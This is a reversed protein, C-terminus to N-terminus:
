SKGNLQSHWWGLQRLWIKWLPPSFGGVLISVSHQVSTKLGHLDKRQRNSFIATLKLLRDETKKQVTCLCLYSWINYLCYIIIPNSDSINCSLLHHIYISAKQNIPTSWIMWTTLGHSLISVWLQVNLFVHVWRSMNVISSGFNKTSPKPGIQRWVYSKGLFQSLSPLRPARPAGTSGLRAICLWKQFRTLLHRKQQSGADKTIDFVLNDQNSQWVNAYWDGAKRNLDYHVRENYRSQQLGYKNTYDGDYNTIRAIHTFCCCLQVNRQVNRRRLQLFWWTSHRHLIASIGQHSSPVPKATRGQHKRSPWAEM